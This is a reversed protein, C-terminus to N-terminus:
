DYREIGINIRYLEIIIIVIEKSGEHVDKIDLRLSGFIEVLHLVPISDLQICSPDLVAVNRYVSLQENGILSELRRRIVVIWLSKESENIIQFVSKNDKRVQGLVIGIHILKISKLHFEM